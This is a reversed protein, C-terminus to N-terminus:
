DDTYLSGRQAFYDRGVRFSSRPMDRLRLHYGALATALRKLNDSRRSYCFDIDTTTHDSGHLIASWGGIVLFDVGADALVQVAKAFNM